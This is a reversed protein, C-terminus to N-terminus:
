DHAKVRGYEDITYRREPFDKKHVEAHHDRCLAQLNNFSLTISPDSINEPTIPIKHHVIEAPTIRGQRECLECLGGVKKLYSERCSRWAPSFYFDKAYPKM